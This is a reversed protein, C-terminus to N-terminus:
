LITKVKFINNVKSRDKDIEFEREAIATGPYITIKASDRGWWTTTLQKTWKAVLKDCEEQTDCRKIDYHDGLDLVVIYSM